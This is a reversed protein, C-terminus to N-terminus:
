GEFDAAPCYRDEFEQMDDCDSYSDNPHWDDVAEEIEREQQMSLLWDQDTFDDPPDDYGGNYRNFDNGCGCGYECECM